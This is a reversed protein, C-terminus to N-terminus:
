VSYTLTAYIKAGTGGPYANNYTVITMTTSAALCLVQLQSGTLADERGCGEYVVSGNTFPITAFVGAAGTGNNSIEIKLTATILRGIRTYTGSSTYTTITGSAATVTPTWTGEEYWNLLQSTMGAAPTNATFNIGKAATGQVLNGINVILNGASDLEAAQFEVASSNVCRFALGLDYSGSYRVVQMKASYVTNDTSFAIATYATSNSAGNTNLFLVPNSASGLVSVRSSAYQAATGLLLNGAQNLRMKESSNAQFIVDAATTSGFYTGGAGATMRAINTANVQISVTTEVETSTITAYSNSGAGLLLKSNGSVFLEDTLLSQIFGAWSSGTSDKFQLLKQYSVLAAPASVNNATGGQIDIRGTCGFTNDVTVPTNFVCAAQDFTAMGYGNGDNFTISNTAADIGRLLLGQTANTTLSGEGPTGAGVNVGLINAFSVSNNVTMTGSFVTNVTGVPVRMVNGGSNNLLTLADTTATAGRLTLGGTASLTMSGEYPVGGQVTISPAYFHDTGLGALNSVGAINFEIRAGTQGSGAILLVNSGYATISAFDAGTSDAGNPDLTLQAVRSSASANDQVYGFVGSNYAATANNTKLSLLVGTAATASIAGTTSLTGTPGVTVKAVSSSDQIQLLNATASAHGRLTLPAVDTAPQVLQAASFTNALSLGPLTTTASPGTITTGDIVALTASTAPATFAVKNISTAAAVGLIPTVLTPSTAFVAVGTGTEDTLAAALNASSPTALFTAIGTGPTIGAIASNALVQVTGGSNKFFLKGDATNLALEGAVLNTNLPVNTTTSSYYLSIPTFNTAAM